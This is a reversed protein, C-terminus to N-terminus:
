GGAGKWLKDIISSLFDLVGSIGNRYLFDVVDIALPVLVLLLVVASVLLVIALDCRHLHAQARDKVAMGACLWGTFDRSIRTRRSEPWIGTTTVITTGTGATDNTRMNLLHKLLSM